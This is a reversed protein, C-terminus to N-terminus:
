RRALIPAVGERVLRGGAAVLRRAASKRYEGPGPWEGFGFIGNAIDRLSAGAMSADHARLAKAARVAWSHHRPRTPATGALRADFRRVAELHIPLRHDRAILFTLEVPGANVTGIHIDLRFIEGLLVLQVHEGVNSTIVRADLCALDVGFISTTRRAAVSLVHADVDARWM